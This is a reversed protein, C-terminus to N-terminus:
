TNRLVTRAVALGCFYCGMKVNGWECINALPPNLLFFDGGWFNEAKHAFVAAWNKTPQLGM